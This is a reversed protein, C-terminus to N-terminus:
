ASPRARQAARVFAPDVQTRASAPPRIGPQDPANLVKSRALSVGTAAGVFGCAALGSRSFTATGLQQVPALWKASPVQSKAKRLGRIPGTM